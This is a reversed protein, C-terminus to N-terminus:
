RSRTPNATARAATRLSTLGAPLASANITDDGADGSIVLDDVGSLDALVDGVSDTLLIHQGNPLVAIFDSAPSGNFTFKAM